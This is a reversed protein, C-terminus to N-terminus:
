LCKSVLNILQITSNQLTFAIKMQTGGNWSIKEITTIIVKLVEMHIHFSTFM